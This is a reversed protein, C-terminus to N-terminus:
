EKTKDKQLKKNKERIKQKRKEIQQQFALRRNHEAFALNTFVNKAGRVYSMFSVNKTKDVVKNIYNQADSINMQEVKTCVQFLANIIDEYNVIVSHQKIKNCAYKLFTYELYDGKFPITSLKTEIEKIKDLDENLSYQNLITTKFKERLENVDLLCQNNIFDSVKTNSYSLILPKQTSIFYEFPNNPQTEINDNKYFKLDDFPILFFSLGMTDNLNTKSDWCADLVYFGNINYKEDKLYVVNFRHGIANHNEQLSKSYLKYSNSYCVINKNNLANCIEKLYEAYGMCCIYESNSVGMISRSLLANQSFSEQKYIKNTVIKYAYLLQELPSLVCSNIKKVTNNVFDYANNLEDINWLTNYEKFFLTSNHQSLANEFNKLNNLEIQSFLKNGLQISFDFCELNVNSNIVKQLIDNLHSINEYSDLNIDIHFRNFKNKYFNIQNTTSPISWSKVTILCNKRNLPKM